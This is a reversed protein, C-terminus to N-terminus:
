FRGWAILGTLVFFVLAPVAKGFGHKHQLHHGVALIMVLALASAAIPTLIPLVGTAWPLVLGLAGAIEAAGIFATLEKSPTDKGAQAKFKEYNFVKMSGIMLFLAGVLGQLVWLAINM